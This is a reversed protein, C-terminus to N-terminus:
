AFVDALPAKLQFERELFCSLKQSRVFPRDDVPFFTTPSGSYIAEGRNDAEETVVRQRFGAGKRLSEKSFPQFSPPRPFNGRAMQPDVYRREPIPLMFFNNEKPLVSPKHRLHQADWLSLEVSLHFGSLSIRV